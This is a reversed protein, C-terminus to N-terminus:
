LACGKAWLVVGLGLLLLGLSFRFLRSRFLPLRRYEPDNGQVFADLRVLVEDPNLGVYQAYSRVYGKLFTFGPLTEFRDSEIAELYQPRIRTAEAVEQLSIGRLERERKLSAGFSENFNM